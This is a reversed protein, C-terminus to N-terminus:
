KVHEFVGTISDDLTPRPEAWSYDDDDVKVDEGDEWRAGNLYTSPHCIFKARSVTAIYGDIGNIATLQDKPSLKNFAKLAAAKNKKNPYKAWFDAFDCLLDEKTGHHLKTIPYTPNVESNNESKSGLQKNVSESKNGVYYQKGKEAIRICDKKGKKVHDIFGNEALAKLHRYVTDAKLNLVPLESSIVQRAVWYYVEDDIIETKAWTSATSLLDLILIQNINTLGLEVAQKQNISITYKM